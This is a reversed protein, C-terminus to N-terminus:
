GCCKTYHQVMHKIQKSISRNERKALERILNQTDKDLYISMNPVSKVIEKKNHNAGTLSYKGMSIM